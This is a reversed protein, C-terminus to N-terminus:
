RQEAEDWKEDLKRKVKDELFSVGIKLNIYRKERMEGEMVPKM